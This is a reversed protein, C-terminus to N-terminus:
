VERPSFHLPTKYITGLLYVDTWWLGDEKVFSHDNYLYGKEPDLKGQKNLEHLRDVSLKQPVDSKKLVSFTGSAVALLAAIILIIVLLQKKENKGQKSHPDSALEKEGAQAREVKIEGVM